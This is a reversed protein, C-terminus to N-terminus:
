SFLSRQETVRHNRLRLRKHPYYLLQLAKLLTTFNQGIKENFRILKSACNTTRSLFMESMIDYSTMFMTALDMLMEGHTEFGNLLWHHFYSSDTMGLARRSERTSMIEEGCCLAVRCTHFRTEMELIKM